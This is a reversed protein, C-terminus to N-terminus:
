RSRHMDEAHEVVETVIHSTRRDAEGTTQVRLPEAALESPVDEAVEFGLISVFFDIAPDYERVIVAVLDLRTM